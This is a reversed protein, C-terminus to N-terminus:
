RHLYLIFKLSNSSDLECHFVDFRNWFVFHNLLFHESFDHITQFDETKSFLHIIAFEILIPQPGPEMATLLVDSQLDLSQLNSDWCPWVVKTSISQSIKEVTM